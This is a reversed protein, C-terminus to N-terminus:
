NIRFYLVSGSKFKLTLPISPDITSGDTSPLLTLRAEVRTTELFRTNGAVLIEEEYFFNLDYPQINFNLPTHTPTNDSDLFVFEVVFGRNFENEAAFQFVVKELEKEVGSDGIPTFSVGDSIENTIETVLDALLLQYEDISFNVLSIPTSPTIEIDNVQDFDIDKVCSVIVFYFSLIVIRFLGKM